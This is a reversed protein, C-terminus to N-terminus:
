PSSRKSRRSVYEKLVGDMRAQWGEGTSRFFAIVEPSYRVSLLQKSADSKPRGRVAGIPVMGKLQADTLAQADPDAAAAAKIAADEKLAPMVIKPRKIIKPM